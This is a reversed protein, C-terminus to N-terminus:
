KQQNLRKQYAENMEAIIKQYQADNKLSEVFADWAELPERGMIVKTKMDRIKQDYDKGVLLYTDSILGIAPDPISVKAREDIIKKNREYVEVPMGVFWAKQYKDFRIFIQGFVQQSVNDKVAQETSVRIGGEIVNHHVGEFGFNALVHGEESAGYDMFELLKKVKEEPVSKPIVYYGFFGGTRNVYEGQPGILSVLPLMEAEPNTKRLEVTDPWSQDVSDARMGARGSQVMEIAQSRTTVAFDKQIIGDNFARNQWELAQRMEPELTTDILKGDKAKWRSSANFVSEIETFSGSNSGAVAVGFTDDKGNGDPDNHTFAYLVDYLEDVTRPMELGLNDLWDKRINLFGNGDINRVRPIGYNRGDISTYIWVDQPFEMLHPYNKVMDTLDWFAGQKAMQTVLPDSPNNIYMLDPIDGGALTVNAKEDYNNPSVWTIDLKTNTRKEIEKWIVNNSDPPEQSYFVTMISIETPKEPQKTEQSSAGQGSTGPGPSGSEASEPNQAAGACASVMLALSFILFTLLFRKSGGKQKKAM